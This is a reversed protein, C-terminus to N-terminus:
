EEVIVQNEIDILYEALKFDFEDDINVSRNRPMEYPLTNSSVFINKKMIFDTRCAYIAGNRHYVVPLSQRLMNSPEDYFSVLKGKEITYMRSPHTDEVKYVSIVSDANSNILLKIAGDIDGVTRFPTTPQLLLIYKYENRQRNIVDHIVPMMPTNDQALEAPRMLVTIEEKNLISAYKKSDTTVVLDDVYTSTKAVDITHFILPKSGLLRINKDPVGKSGSRAPIIGLIKSIM